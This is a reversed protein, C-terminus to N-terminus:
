MRRRRRRRIHEGFTLKNDVHVGLYKASKSETITKGDITLNFNLTDKENKSRFLILKTKSLNLSLRNARLWQCVNVMESNLTEKLIELNKHSHYITTDDAFLFFSLLKSSHNIDNIYLLFM